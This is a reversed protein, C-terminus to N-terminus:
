KWMKIVGDWGCSFMTSPELPHWVCCIAPGKTHARFKQLIKHNRWDWFFLSGNGDGSVLFQGDPSFGMECAYGSVIHGSFKKKKQMAFKNGAQFVVVTNDLSQGVFFRESPHLVLCPMSHMSPDSIYKIPVGIDWEWVLVKKDDSASVMKTGNDEVFVITNVPALHHNYEQTIEATTANYTVIKNNSCGVVFFNDDHPYFKVVYPVKRNTFTQLVAGTETNWLRLFRDFSASVFKNGTSNFQVDRVAATHGIYTRMVQKEAVSWIKCKGDLGASLLLHGTVPFLRIRHVGNNHGTFRHVCKLPIKCKHDGLVAGGDALISGSGAPPAMWSQGKYDFEQSGHFTTTPEVPGDDSLRPPLLHAMKREVLRDQASEDDVKEASIGLQREKEAFYERQALQEPALEGKQFATIANDAAWQEEASPPAWIGYEAEDDSGQVLEAEVDKRKMQPRPRKARRGETETFQKMREATYGLTTRLVMDGSPAIAQGSRQFNMRQEAFTTEEVAINTEIQGKLTKDKSSSPDIVAPGQIPQYLVAKTPNNFLMLQGASSRKPGAADKPITLASSQSQLSIVNMSVSPAAQLFRRDPPRALILDPTAATEEARGTVKLEQSLVIKEKEDDSDYSALTDMTLSTGHVRTAV